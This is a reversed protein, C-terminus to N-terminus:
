TISRLFFKASNALSQLWVQNEVCSNFHIPNNKFFAQIEESLEFLCVLIKGQSLWRVETHSLLYYHVSGMEKCLVQFIRTNTPWSKIFNVIKVVNDLVQELGESMCKAM